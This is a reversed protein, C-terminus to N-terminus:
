GGEIVGGPAMGKRTPPVSFGIDRCILTQAARALALPTLLRVAPVGCFFICEFLDADHYPKLMFPTSVHPNNQFPVNM